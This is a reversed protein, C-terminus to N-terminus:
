LINQLVEGRSLHVFIRIVSDDDNKVSKFMCNNNMSKGYNHLKLMLIKLISM